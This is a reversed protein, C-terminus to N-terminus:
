LGLSQVERFIRQAESALDSLKAPEKRKAVFSAALLAVGPVGTFPDPTAILAIGAKRM